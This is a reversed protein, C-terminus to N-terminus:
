KGIDQLEIKDLNFSWDFISDDIIDPLLFSQLTLGQLVTPDATSFESQIDADALIDEDTVKLKARIRKFFAIEKYEIHNDAWITKVAIHCIKLECDKTLQGNAISHLYSSIFENGQEKLDSLYQNLLAEVELNAFVDSKQTLNKVLNLEEDAIEGDCAMCCFATKLYMENTPEM